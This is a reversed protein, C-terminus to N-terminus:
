KVEIYSMKGIYEINILEDHIEISVDIVDDVMDGVRFKIESEIDSDLYKTTDFLELWINGEDGDFNFGKFERNLFYCIDNEAEYGGNLHIYGNVHNEDFFELFLKIHYGEIGNYYLRAVSIEELTVNYEKGDIKLM